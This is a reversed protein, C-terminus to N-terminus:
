ASHGSIIPPYLKAPEGMHSVIQRPSDPPSTLPRTHRVHAESEPEVTCKKNQQGLFKRHGSGM